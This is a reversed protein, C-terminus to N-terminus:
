LLIRELMFIFWRSVRVNSAPWVATFVCWLFSWTFKVQVPVSLYHPKIACGLSFLVAIVIESFRKGLLRLLRKREDMM